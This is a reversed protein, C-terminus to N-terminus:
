KDGHLCCIHTWVCACDAAPLLGAPGSFTTCIKCYSASHSSRKSSAIQSVYPADPWHMDVLTRPPCMDRGATYTMALFNDLMNNGGSLMVFSPEGSCSWVAGAADRQWPWCYSMSDAKCYLVECRLLEVCRALLGEEVLPRVARDTADTDVQLGARQARQEVGRLAGDLYASVCTLTCTALYQLFPLLVGDSALATAAASTSPGSAARSAAITNLRTCVAQSSAVLMAQAMCLEPELSTCPM